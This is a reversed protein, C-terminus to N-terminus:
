AIITNGLYAGIVEPQRLVELPSGCALVRGNELILLQDAIRTLLDLNHEVILVGKGQKKLDQVVGTLITVFEPDGGSSPEDFLYLTADSRVLIRALELRRRQGFSLTWAPAEAKDNLGVKELIRSVSFQQEADRTGWRRMLQMQETVTHNPWTRADQYTRALLFRSRVALPLRDIRQGCFRIEGRDPFCNGSLLNLLTTKGSGNPGAIGLTGGPTFSFGVDDLALIGNFKKTLNRVELVYCDRGCHSM